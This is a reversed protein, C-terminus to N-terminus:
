GPHRGDRRIGSARGRRRLLPPGDFLAGGLVMATGGIELIWNWKMGFLRRNIFIDVHHFSSARILVYTIVFIVGAVAWRMNRRLVPALHWFLGGLMAMAAVVALIFAAQLTRRQDFWGHQRASDRAVQTLLSQLDLQKNLGLALMLVALLGWFWGDFGPRRWAATACALAAALYVVV